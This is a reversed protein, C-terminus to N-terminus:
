CRRERSVLGRHVGVRVTAEPISFKTGGRSAAAAWRVGVGRALLMGVPPRPPDGFAGSPDLPRGCAARHADLDFVVKESSALSEIPMLLLRGRLTSLASLTILCTSSWALPACIAAAPAISPADQVLSMLMYVPDPPDYTSHSAARSCM